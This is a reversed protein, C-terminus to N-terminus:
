VGVGDDLEDAAHVDQTLVLGHVCHEALEFLEVEDSLLDHLQAGDAVGEPLQLLLTPRGHAIEESGSYM